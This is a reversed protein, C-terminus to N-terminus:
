RVFTFGRGFLPSGRGNLWVGVIAHTSSLFIGLREFLLDRLGMSFLFLRDLASSFARLGVLLFLISESSDRRLSLRLDRLGVLLSLLVVM